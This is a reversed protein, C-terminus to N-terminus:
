YFIFEFEHQFLVIQYSHKDLLRYYAEILKFPLSLM